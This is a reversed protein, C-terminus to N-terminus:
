GKNYHTGKYYSSFVCLAVQTDAVKQRESATVPVIFLVPLQCAQKGTVAYARSFLLSIIVFAVKYHITIMQKQKKGERRRALSLSALLSLSNGDLALSNSEMM